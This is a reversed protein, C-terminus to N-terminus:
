DPLVSTIETIKPFQATLRYAILKMIIAVNRIEEKSHGPELFLNKFETELDKFYEPLTETNIKQELDKIVKDLEGKDLWVGHCELCVDAEVQSSGYQIRYLPSGDRPCSLFTGGSKLKDENSWLDFDLWALNEDREDKVANLEDKDFWIGGCKECRDVRCHNVSVEDLSKGCQPCKM